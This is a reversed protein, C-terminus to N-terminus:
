ATFLHLQEVKIPTKRYLNNKPRIQQIEELVSQFKQLELTARAIRAECKSIEHQIVAESFHTYQM